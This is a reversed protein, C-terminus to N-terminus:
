EHPWIRLMSGGRIMVALFRKGGDIESWEASEIKARELDFYAHECSELRAREWPDDPHPVEGVVFRIQDSTDDVDDRHLRGQVHLTPRLDTPTAHSSVSVPQADLARLATVLEDFTV